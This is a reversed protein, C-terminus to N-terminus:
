KVQIYENGSASYLLKKIEIIFTKANKMVKEAEQSKIEGIGYSANIRETKAESLSNLYERSLQKANKLNSLYEKPVKKSIYFAEFGAIACEHSRVELGIIWLSAVTAHYMAYYSCVIQWDFFKHEAMKEAAHLNWEAKELHLKAEELNIEQKRLKPSTEPTGEFCRELKSM